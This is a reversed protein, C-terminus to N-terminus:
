VAARWRRLRKQQFSLMDPLSADAPRRGPARAGAALLPVLRRWVLGRLLEAESGLTENRGWLARLPRAALWAFAAPSRDAAAFRRLARRKRGSLRGDCRALLVQAQVARPLYGRFYAGRGGRVLGSWRRPGAPADGHTVAGFFAGSHQVYDYLPRDVYAVDGAALAVLGIWHDHFPLGPTDPFPLALEAVERRFLAAAGTISNAVLLSVLDTHNNRRGQWLTDRLVRGGADVLRQDSYVLEAAGLAGRLVELKEPYWRDDQDCLAVLQAEAPALRLAREFNRYFGLREGSRSLVFRPDDGLVEGIRAVHEPSSCDDSIVCVWRRDTQARLSEVQTRFLGIDPEFTAMCVAILGAGAPPGHAPPSAAPVIEIRGLPAVEEAGDALRAALALEVAGPRDRAAIPVTAWFGSRFSRLSPDQPSAAGGPHLARFVDPRPMRAALPRHRVGDVLLEVAAVDQHRHFCTGYCFVATAGAVPLTAPLPSELKAILDACV